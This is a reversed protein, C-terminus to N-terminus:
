RIKVLAIGSLGGGVAGALAGVFTQVVNVFIPSMHLFTTLGVISIGALITGSAVAGALAFAITSAIPWWRAQPTGPWLLRFQWLGSLAGFLTLSLLYDFPLGVAFGITFSLTYSVVSFFIWSKSQFANPRLALLQFIGVILGGIVLAVIHALLGPFSGHGGLADVLVDVISFLAHSLAFAALHAAAWRRWLGPTVTLRSDQMTAM